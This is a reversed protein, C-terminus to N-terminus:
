FENKIFSYDFRVNHAVFICDKLIQQLPDQIDRFTPASEIEKPTIGTLNIIEPPIHYGPDILTKFTSVVKGDEVRLVGVEIIRDHVPSMGTTEIDVFAIKTPLM